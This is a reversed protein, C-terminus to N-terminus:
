TLPLVRKLIPAIIGIAWEKPFMGSNLIRDFLKVIVELQYDNLKKFLEFVICDIGATKNLKLRNIITKLEEVVIPKDLIEEFQDTMSPFNDRSEFYNSEKEKVSLNKFYEYLENKSFNIKSTKNKLKLKHWFLKPNYSNFNRLEDKKKNWYERERRKYIKRRSFYHMRATSIEQDNSNLLLTSIYARRLENMEKKENKCERDYCFKNDRSAQYSDKQKSKERFKITKFHTDSM